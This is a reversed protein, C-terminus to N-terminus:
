AEPKIFNFQMLNQVLVTRGRTGQRGQIGTVERVSCGSSLVSVVTSKGGESACGHAGDHRSCDGMRSGEQGCITGAVASAEFKGLNQAVALVELMKNAQKFHNYQALTISHGVLPSGTYSARQPLVQNIRPSFPLSV